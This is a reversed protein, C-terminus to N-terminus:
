AAPSMVCSQNFRAYMYLKGVTSNKYQLAVYLEMRLVEMSSQESCLTRRRFRDPGRGRVGIRWIRVARSFLVTATGAAADRPGTGRSYWPAAQAADHEGAIACDGLPRLGIEGVCLCAVQLSRTLRTHAPVNACGRPARELGSGAGGVAARM